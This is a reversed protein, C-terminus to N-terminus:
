VFMAIPNLDAEPCPTERWGLAVPVTYLRGPAYRAWFHRMGPVIVKAVPLGIDPRTQDHILVEHGAKEFRGFLDIVLERVSGRAPEPFGQPATASQSSPLIYPQNAITATRWWSLAAPDGFAYRTAGDPGVDLVAPAFQMMETMARSLAIRADFHAGFGMIIDETPGNTRRLFCVIVPIGLDGTLDLAWVTRGQRAFHDITSDIWPDAFAALDVAPRSARNMWWIGVADREVVELAGQLLADEFTGGAACGNSDAWAFFHGSPDGFGYYLQSTLMQRQRRQTWSWVPSWCVEVDDLFPEPVVQFREGRGNWAERNEYQSDSYLLVSAPNVALDGLAAATSRMIKEEGRYVGCYRELAECLASTRAQAPTRGKGSSHSRLGDKIFHLTDNRLAFNHGALYTQIPGQGTFPTPIVGQVIGTLPSVLHAYRQFTAEPAEARVGNENAVSARPDALAVPRGAAHALSPEGCARCQPRRNIPHSSQEGTITNLVVLQNELIPSDSRVIWRATQLLALAQAQTAGLPVKARSLVYPESRGTQRRLHQEVERNHTLWFDLCAHCGGGHPRFIPGIMPALGQPKLLLWPIKHDLARRNLQALDTRQYDDTVAIVMSAPRGPDSRIGMAALGTMMPAPDAAGFSLVHVNAQSIRHHVDAATLGLETWFITLDDWQGQPGYDLHGNRVLLDIGVEVEEASLVSSLQARIQTWSRTGDVLPALAFMTAGELVHRENESLLYIGEGPVTEVQYKTKFRPVQFM